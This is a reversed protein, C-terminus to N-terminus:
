EVVREAIYLFRGRHKFDPGQRRMTFGEAHLKAMVEKALEMPGTVTRREVTETKVRVRSAATRPMAPM